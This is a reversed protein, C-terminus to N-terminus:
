GPHLEGVKVGAQEILRALWVGFGDDGARQRAGPRRGRGAAEGAHRRCRGPSEAPLAVDALRRDIRRRETAGPLWTLMAYGGGVLAVGIVFMLAPAFLAGM